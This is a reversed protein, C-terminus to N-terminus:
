RLGECFDEVSGEGGVLAGHFRVYPNGTTALKALNAVVKDNPM